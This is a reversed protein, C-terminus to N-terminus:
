DQSFYSALARTVGARTKDREQTLGEISELAEHCVDFAEKATMTDKGRPILSLVGLNGEEVSEGPEDKSSLYMLIATKVEQPSLVSEGMEWSIRIDSILDSMISVKM